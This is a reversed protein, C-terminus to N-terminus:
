KILMKEYLYLLGLRGNATREAKTFGAKEYTKQAPINKANVALVAKAIDKSIECSIFCDLQELAKAAYGLKRFREDISFARLLIVKDDRYAYTRPGAGVHLCFLGVVQEQNNLIVVAFREADAQCQEIVHDPRGTYTANTLCYNRIQNGHKELQYLELRM